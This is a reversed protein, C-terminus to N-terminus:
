RCLGSPPRRTSCCSGQPVCLFTWSRQSRTSFFLGSGFGNKTAKKNNKYVVVLGKVLGNSCNQKYILTLVICIFSRYYKCSHNIFSYQTLFFSFRNFKPLYNYLLIQHKKSSYFCLWCPDFLIVCVECYTKNCPTMDVRCSLSMCQTHM